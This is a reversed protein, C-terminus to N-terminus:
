GAGYMEGMRFRRTEGFEFSSPAIFDKVSLGSPALWDWEFAFPEGRPHLLGHLLALREKDTMFREGGLMPRYNMVAREFNDVM